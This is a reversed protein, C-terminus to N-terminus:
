LGWSLRFVPVAIYGGHAPVTQSGVSAHLGRNYAGASLAADVASVIHNVVIIAIYTSATTYYNNAKGREGDYYLSESSLPDGYNFSPPADSWGQNYQPYKGILE